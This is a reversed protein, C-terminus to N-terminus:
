VSLPIGAKLLEEAPYGAAAVQEPSFGKLLDEASIGAAM